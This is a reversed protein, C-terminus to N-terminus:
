TASASSRARSTKTTSADCASLNLRVARVHVLGDGAACGVFWAVVVRPFRSRSRAPSLRECMGRLADANGAVAAWAISGDRNQPFRQISARDYRLHEHFDLLRVGPREVWKLLRSEDEPAQAVKVMSRPLLDARIGYFESV